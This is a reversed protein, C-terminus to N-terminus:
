LPERENIEREVIRVACRLVGLLLRLKETDLDKLDAEDLDLLKQLEDIEVKM